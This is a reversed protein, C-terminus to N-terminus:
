KLRPREPDSLDMQDWPICLPKFRHSIGFRELLAAAGVRYEEVVCDTGEGTWKAHISEIRGIVKGNADRVKRGFLSEVRVHRTM